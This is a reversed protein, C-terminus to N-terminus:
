YFFIRIFRVSLDMIKPAFQRSVFALLEKSWPFLGSAANMYGSVFYMGYVVTLLSLILQTTGPIKNLNSIIALGERM